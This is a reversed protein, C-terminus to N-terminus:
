LRSAPTYTYMPDHPKWTEFYKVLVKFYKYSDYDISDGFLNKGKGHSSSMARGAMRVFNDYDNRDKRSQGTMWGVDEFTTRGIVKNITFGDPLPTTDAFQTKKWGKTNRNGPIREVLIDIDCYNYPSAANDASCWLFATSYKRGHWQSQASVLSKSVDEEHRDSKFFDKEWTAMKDLQITAQFIYQSNPKIHKKPIMKDM